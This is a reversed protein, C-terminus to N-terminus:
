GSRSDIRGTVRPARERRSPAGGPPPVPGPARARENWRRPLQRARGGANGAAPRSSRDHDGPGSGAAAAAAGGGGDVRLGAAPLCTLVRRPRAAKAEARLRGEAPLCSRPPPRLPLPRRGAQRQALGGVRASGRARLAGGGRCGAGGCGRGAPAGRVREGARGAARRLSEAAGGRRLHGRSPEPRRGMAQRRGPVTGPRPRRARADALPLPRSRRRRGLRKRAGKVWGGVGSKPPPRQEAAGAAQPGAPGPALSDAVPPCGPRNGPPAHSRSSGEHPGPAPPLPGPPSGGRPPAGEGGAEQGM